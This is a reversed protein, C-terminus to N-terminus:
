NIHRREHQLSRRSLDPDPWLGPNWNERANETQHIRNAEDEGGRNSFRTRRTKRDAILM